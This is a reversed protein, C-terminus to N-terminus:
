RRTDEPRSLYWITGGLIATVAAIGLAAKWKDTAPPSQPAPPASKVSPQFTPVLGAGQVAGTLGQTFAAVDSAALVYGTSPAGYDAPAPAPARQPPASPAPAKTPAGYSSPLMGETSALGSLSAADGDAYGYGAPLTDPMEGSLTDGNGTLMGLCSPPLLAVGSYPTSRSRPSTSLSARM